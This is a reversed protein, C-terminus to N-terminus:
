FLSLPLIKGPYSFPPLLKGTYFLSSLGKIAYLVLLHGMSNNGKIHHTSAKMSLPYFKHYTFNKHLHDHPNEQAHRTHSLINKEKPSPNGICSSKFTFLKSVVSSHSVGFPPLLECSGKIQILRALFTHIFIICKYIWDTLCNCHTLSIQSWCGITMSAVNTITVHMNLYFYVIIKSYIYIYTYMYYVCVCVCCVRM